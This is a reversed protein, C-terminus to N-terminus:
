SEGLADALVPDGIADAQEVLLLLDELAHTFRAIGAIGATNAAGKLTHAARRTPEFVTTDGALLREMSHSLADCLAPLERLLQSLVDPDTDDAIELSLRDGAELPAHRDIRRSRVERLAGWQGAARGIAAADGLGGARHVALAAEITADDHRRFADRWR